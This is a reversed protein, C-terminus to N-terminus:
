SEPMRRMLVVDLGRTRYNRFRDRLFGPAEAPEIENFGKAAYFHRLYSYPLCYCDRKNGESVLSNLIAKGVGHGRHEKLIRMGRLVFVGEEDSLRGVGIINGEITAYVVQDEPAVTGGYGTINYITELNNLESAKASQIKM